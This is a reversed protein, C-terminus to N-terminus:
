AVIADWTAARSKAFVTIHGIKQLGFNGPKLVLQSQRIDGFHGMLRWVAKAPVMADDAMAIFKVPAALKSTDSAPLDKGIDIAMYDPNNSWRRWQRYVGLPIDAGMQFTKGPLFGMGSAIARLPPSWLVRALLQFPWPHDKVHTAGSGIAIVRAVRDLRTQFPLCIAGLSHGIVWLSTDPYLSAAFDRAAQADRLGWDSMTANSQRLPRAASAGFDRYDYTLCAIGRTEALWTAFSAYFSAPVGLAGNIVAIATPPTLPRFVTGALEFHDSSFSIAESECTQTKAVNQM